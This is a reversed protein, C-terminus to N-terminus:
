PAESDARRLRIRAPLRETELDLGVGGQGADAIEGLRRDFGLVFLIRAFKGIAVGPDGRGIRRLTTCLEADSTGGDGRDSHPPTQPCRSPERRTQPPRPPGPASPDSRQEFVHLTQYM